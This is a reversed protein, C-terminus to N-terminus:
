LFFQHSHLKSYLEGSLAYSALDDHGCSDVFGRLTHMDFLWFRVLVPLGFQCCGNGSCASPPGPQLASVLGWCVMKTLPIVTRVSFMCQVQELTVSVGQSAEMLNGIMNRAHDTPIAVRANGCVLVLGPTRLRGINGTGMTRVARGRVWLGPRPRRSRVRLICRIRPRSAGRLM